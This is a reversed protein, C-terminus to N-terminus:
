NYQNYPHAWGILNWLIYRGADVSLEFSASPTALALLVLCIAIAKMKINYLGFDELENLRFKVYLKYKERHEIYRSAQTILLHFRLSISWCTTGKASHLGDFQLIFKFDTM